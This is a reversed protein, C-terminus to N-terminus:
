FLQAMKHKWWCYIFTGIEGCVDKEVNPLMPRELLLAVRSPTYKHKVTAKM